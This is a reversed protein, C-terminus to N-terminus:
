TTTSGSPGSPRCCCGPPTRAPPRRSRWVAPRTGCPGSPAVTSRTPSTAHAGRSRTPTPRPPRAGTTSGTPRPRRRRPPSSTPASGTWAASWTPSSSSSTGTSGPRCRSTRRGSSTSSVASPVASWGCRPSRASSRSPAPSPPVPSAPRCRMREAPRPRHPCPLGPGRAGVSASGGLLLGGHGCGDVQAGVGDRAGGLAHSPRHRLGLDAVVDVALVRGDSPELLLDGRPELPLRGQEGRGAHHGVLDRQPREHRRPRLDHDLAARVDHGVLGARVGLEAAELEAGDVGRAADEVGREDAGREPRRRERVRRARQDADLLGGVTPTAGDVVEVRQVPDARDGVLRPDGDVGVPRADEVGGDRGAGGDRGVGGPDVRQHEAHRLPEAGRDTREDHAVGVEDGLRRRHRRTYPPAIRCTPTRAAAARYASACWTSRRASSWALARRSASITASRTGVATSGPATCVLM